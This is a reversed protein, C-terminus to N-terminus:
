FVMVDFSVPDSFLREVAEARLSRALAQAIYGKDTIEGANADPPSDLVLARSIRGGGQAQANFREM